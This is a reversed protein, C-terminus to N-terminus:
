VVAVIIHHGLEGLELFQFIPLWESNTVVSNSFVIQIGTNVYAKSTVPGLLAWFM